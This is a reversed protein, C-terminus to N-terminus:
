PVVQMSCLQSMSDNARKIMLQLYDGMMVLEKLRLGRFISFYATAGGMAQLELAPVSLGEQQLSHCLIAVFTTFHNPYCVLKIPCDAVVWKLTAFVRRQSEM